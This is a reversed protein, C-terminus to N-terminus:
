VNKEREIRRHELIIVRVMHASSIAIFIIGTIFYPIIDESFPKKDSFMIEYGQRFIMITAISSLFM